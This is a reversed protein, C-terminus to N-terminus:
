YRACKPWSSAIPLCLDDRASATVGDHAVASSSGAVEATFLPLFVLSYYFRIRRCYTDDGELTVGAALAGDRRRGQLQVAGLVDGGM